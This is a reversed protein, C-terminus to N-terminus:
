TLEAAQGYYASGDANAPAIVMKSAAQLENRRQAAANDALAKDRANEAATKAYMDRLDADGPAVAVAQAAQGVAENALRDAVGDYNRKVELRNRRNAAEADAMARDRMEQANQVAWSTTEQAAATAAAGPNAAEQTVKAAAADQAAIAAERAAMAAATAEANPAPIPAAVPAPAQGQPAVAESVKAPALGMAAEKVRTAAAEAAAIAQERADTNSTM